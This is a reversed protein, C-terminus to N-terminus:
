STPRTSCRSARTSSSCAARRCRPSGSTSATTAASSAARSASTSATTTSSAAEADQRDAGRRRAVRLAPEQAQQDRQAPSRPDVRPRGGLRVAVQEEPLVGASRPRRLDGPQGGHPAAGAAEPDAGRRLAPEGRLRALARRHAAAVHGGDAEAHPDADGRRSRQQPAARLVGDEAPAALRPPGCAAAIALAGVLVLAPNRTLWRHYRSIRSHAPPAM